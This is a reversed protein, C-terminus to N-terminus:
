TLYAYGSFPNTFSIRVQSDSLYSVEGIVTTSASDVVTVSPRGGLSHTILWEDSPSSQTHVHRASASPTYFPSAPWEGDVKPGWFTNNVTNIYIDGDEGNASTPSGDGTVLGSGRPGQSGNVSVFVLNPDVSDVTVLNPNEVIEINNPDAADVSILTSQEFVQVINPDTM